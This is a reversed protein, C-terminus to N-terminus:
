ENPYKPKRFTSSWGETPLALTGAMTNQTKWSINAAMVYTLVKTEFEPREHLELGMIAM